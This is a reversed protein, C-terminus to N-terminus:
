GTRNPDESESISTKFQEVFPVLAKQPLGAFMAVIENHSDVGILRDSMKFPGATGEIPEVKSHVAYGGVGILHQRKVAVHVQKQSSHRSMQDNTSPVLPYVISAPHWVDM